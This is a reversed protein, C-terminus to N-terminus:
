AAQRLQQFTELSLVFPRVNEEGETKERKGLTKTWAEGLKEVLYFMNGMHVFRKLYQVSVKGEPDEHKLALVLMNILTVPNM